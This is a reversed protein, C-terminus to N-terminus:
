KSPHGRGQEAADGRGREEGQEHGDRGGRRGGPIRECLALPMQAAASGVRLAPPGRAAATGDHDRHDVAADVGAVGIEDAVEPDVRALERAVADVVVGVAADVVHVAPVEDVLVCVRGVRAAVAGVDGPDQGGAAAVV